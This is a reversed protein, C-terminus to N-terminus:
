FTPSPGDGPHLKPYNSQNEERWRTIVLSDNCQNISMLILVDSFNITFFHRPSQCINGFISSEKSQTDFLIVPVRQWGNMRYLVSLSTQLIAWVISLFSSIFQSHDLVQKYVLITFIFIELLWWESILKQLFKIHM